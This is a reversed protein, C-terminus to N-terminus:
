HVGLGAALACLAVVLWPPLKWLALLLFAAAALAFDASSLIASTWVPHYFAALLLGVVAANVGLMARQMGARRRLGEWLPLAGIMLLFGPLFIATLAAAAGLWGGSVAGLYAAFTFLPGPAAQAAGYGALFADNSVWGRPVVEAQLVPLVVHGGGFVLAGSRYFSDFLQLGYGGRAAALPSLALILAFLALAAMGWRKSLRVPFPSGASRFWAFGLLGSAVIVAIQTWVGPWFVAAAAAAVSLSAREQDPCLSKGMGWLAQAVVAVAVVKLGHLWMGGIGQGAHTVAMGFAALALASPLTFGLWAALAGPVGGRLLGLGIGVQSSAPGPLFQSLSVLDGYAQDDLWRRRNVFAERFYGLHAVPGGFSTCGLRLFIWFIGLISTTDSPEATQRHAM